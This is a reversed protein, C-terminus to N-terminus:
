PNTRSQALLGAFNRACAAATGDAFLATGVVLRDAGLAALHAANAIKVGGDIIIHTALNREYIMERASKIKTGVSEIFSQGGFGPDVGMLLLEEVEDLICEITALPTAPNLAVGSQAGLSHITAIDRHLQPCAEVHVILRQAGANRFIPLLPAPEQVMLHVEIPLRTRHQLASVAQPGFALNPVFRGDMVDVHLGEIAGSGELEAVQEALRGVDCNLLSAYIM